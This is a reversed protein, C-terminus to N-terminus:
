HSRVDTATKAKSATAPGPLGYAEANTLDVGYGLDAMAAVSLASLPTVDSPGSEPTMIELGFTDESWHGPIGASSNDADRIPIVGVGGLEQFIGNAAKGDFTPAAGVTVNTNWNPGVGLGLVHGMEHTIVDGFYAPAALFTPLDDLDVRMTGLITTGDTRFECGGGNADAGGPGDIAQVDVDIVVDDIAGTIAATGPRCYGAPFGGPDDPLGTKIMGEWRTAADEFITAVAPPVSADLRVDINFADPNPAAVTVVTTRTTPANTGDSVELKVTTAGVAAFTTTRLSESTCSTVTKDVTGDNDLDLRCTMSDGDPDSISWGLATTLPSSGSPTVAAFASITPARNSPPAHVCSSVMLAGVATAVPLTKLKM